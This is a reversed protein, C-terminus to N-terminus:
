GSVSIGHRNIQLGARERDWLDALNQEADQRLKNKQVKQNITRPFERVFAVYRPVMFYALNRDCHRILGEPTLTAGPKLIVSVAVEDESSAAKVPYVAVDEVDVHSRIAEEVEYASINEGRRRISDKLRDTFWLYGDEDIVGRDGTHFWMNRRSALTAEPANYYGSTSCWPLEHRLVIEGAVGPSVELDRDDFIRVEVNARPLGVSGLKDRRSRVNYYTAQGFDTLAYASMIAVGFREEFDRAYGPVPALHVRNVAHARDDPSPPQNWLFNVVSSLCNFITARCKRVDAWFQTVSFRLALAISADAMFSAMTSGLFANGHFLPLYVYAIDDPVYEHHTAVDLGYYILQAHCFINAKSPGTTGSTYMLIATESFSPQREPLADSAALLARFDTFILRSLHVGEDPAAATGRDVEVVIVDKLKPVTSEIDLVRGLLAKEVVVAVCDSHELFYTLLNGKAATNMPVTVMGARCIGWQALIQEPCNEM